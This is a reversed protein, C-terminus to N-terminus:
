AAEYHIQVRITDGSAIAFAPTVGILGGANEIGVAGNTGNSSAIGVHNTTASTDFIHVTGSVDESGVATTPLSVTIVNASTGSSTVALYARAIVLKGWQLYRSRTNTVTVGVGQTVTPTWSTWAASGQVLFADLWNALALVQTPGNPADTLEPFPIGTLPSV